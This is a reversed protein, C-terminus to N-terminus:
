LDKLSEISNRLMKRLIKRCKKRQLIRFVLRMLPLKRCMKRWGM